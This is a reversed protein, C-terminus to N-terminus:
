GYSCCKIVKSTPIYSSSKRHCCLVAVDTWEKIILPTGVRQTLQFFYSIKEFWLLHQVISNVIHLRIYSFNMHYIKIYFFHLFPKSFTFIFLSNNKKSVHITEYSCLHTWVFKWLVSYRANNVKYSSNCRM